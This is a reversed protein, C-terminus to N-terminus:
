HVASIIRIDDESVRAPRERPRDGEIMGLMVTNVLREDKM